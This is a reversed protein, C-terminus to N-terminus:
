PHRSRRRSFVANPHTALREGAGRPPWEHVDVQGATLQEHFGAQQTESFPSDGHVVGGDIAEELVVSFRRCFAGHGHHSAAPDVRPGVPHGVQLPTHRVRRGGPEVKARHGLLESRKRDQQQLGVAEEGEVVIHPGVQRVQVVEPVRDGEVVQHMVGTTQPPGIRFQQHQTTPSEGIVDGLGVTQLQDEVLTLQREHRPGLVDVEVGVVHQQRLDHCPHGAQAKRFEGPFPDEARQPHVVRQHHVIDGEDNRPPREPIELAGPHPV